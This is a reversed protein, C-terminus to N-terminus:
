IGFEFREEAFLRVCAEVVESDYLTGTNKEIEELAVDLGLEPRYPRHSSMAEVVDAVALIRAEILIEDRKLGQPYGSGDLREHHQLVIEAIPWPFDISKLIDHAVGPHAKILEFETDSLRSPKSLIEAPISMKGIDHMLGAVRIGVVQDEPLEMELAIAEALKTVRRQHGATYPDRTETIMSVTKITGDFATQVRESSEEIRAYMRANQIAIEAVNALAALLDINDQTYADLRTSQMQIVGIVKGRLKMPVFLSSGSSLKEEIEERSGTEPEGDKESISHSATKTEEMAKHLDPCYLPKGTRIVQSQTGHGEEELPTPPFGSVDREIGNTVVYDTQILDTDSDYFSVIFTDTDVLKHIFEYVTRYIDPLDFPSGLSLALQNVLTQQELLNHVHQESLNLTSAATKQQTMIQRAFLLMTVLAALFLAVNATLLWQTLDRSGALIESLPAEAIVVWDTSELAHFAGFYPTDGHQHVHSGRQETAAIFDEFPLYFLDLSLPGDELAFLDIGSYAIVMGGRDQVRVTMEGELPYDKMSEILHNLRFGGLLVGIREGSTSKVPVAVTTAVLGVSPYFRPAAFYTEGEVFPVTFWPQDAYSKPTYVSLDDSTGAVFWGEADILSLSEFRYSGHALTSITGEIAELDWDLFEPKMSLETLRGLTQSLDTQLGHAVSRAIEELYVKAAGIAENRVHPVVYFVQFLFSLTLVVVVLGVLRVWWSLKRLM